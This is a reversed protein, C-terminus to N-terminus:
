PYILVSGDPNRKLTVFDRRTQLMSAPVNIRIVSGVKMIKETHYQFLLTNPHIPDVVGAYFPEVALKDQIEQIIQKGQVSLGGNEVIAVSNDM